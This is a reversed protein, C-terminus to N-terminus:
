SDHDLLKNSNVKDFVNAFNKYKELIERSSKMMTEIILESMSFEIDLIDNCQLVFTQVDKRKCYKEFTLQSVVAIDVNHRNKAFNKANDKNFSANEFNEFKSEDEVIM